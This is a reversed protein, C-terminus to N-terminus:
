RRSVLISSIGSPRSWRMSCASCRTGGRTPAADILWNANSLNTRIFERDQKALGRDKVLTAYDKNIRLNPMRGDTLYAIYDDGDEDYEVIADPIISPLMSNM